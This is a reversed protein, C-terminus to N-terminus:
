RVLPLYLHCDRCLWNIMQGQVIGWGNDYLAHATSLTTQDPFHVPNIAITYSIIFPTTLKSTNWALVNEEPEGSVQYGDTAAVVEYAPREDSTLPGATKILVTHPPGGYEDFSFSYTHALSQGQCIQVTTEPEQAGAGPVLMLPLLLATLLLFKKM